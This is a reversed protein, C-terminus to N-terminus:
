KLKGIIRDFEENSYFEIEIKGTGDGKGSINVKTGLTSKLSEAVDKYFVDLDKKAPNKEKQPKGINKVIKEIERVSLKEDLVRQALEFQIQPDEVTLLARAHGTSITEDIVMQQVKDCLKLLRLANTITSRSKSVRDAVEDQKLKHETMLRKYAKAEEIPNLDARQINEILSIEAIEQETYTGIVAPMEKLGAMRAARWRREGAIIEYHDGRDQVLIPTIVGHRKISESLEVLKDEDFNQRPQDRNPEISTIKLTARTGKEELEKTAKSPEKVEPLVAKPIMADLGKGLGRAGKGAGREVAM